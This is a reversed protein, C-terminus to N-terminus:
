CRFHFDDLQRILDYYTPPTTSAPDATDGEDLADEPRAVREADRGLAKAELAAESAQIANRDPTDGLDATRRHSM